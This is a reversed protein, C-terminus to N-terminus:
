VMAVAQLISQAVVLQLVVDFCGMIVGLNAAHKRPTEASNAVATARHESSMRADRKKKTFLINGEPVLTPDTRLQKLSTM